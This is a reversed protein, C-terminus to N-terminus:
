DIKGDEVELLPCDADRVDSEIDVDKLTIDCYFTELRRCSSMACNECNKPMEFDKIAVM